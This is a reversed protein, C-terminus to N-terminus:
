VKKIFFENCKLAAIWLKDPIPSHLLSAMFVNLLKIRNSSPNKKIKFFITFKKLILVNICCVLDILANFLGWCIYISAFYEILYIMLYILYIM